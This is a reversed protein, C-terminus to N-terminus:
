SETIRSLCYMSDTSVHQREQIVFKQALEVENTQPELQM